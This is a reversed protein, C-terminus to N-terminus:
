KEKAFTHVKLTVQALTGSMLAFSLFIAISFLLAVRKFFDAGADSCDGAFFISGDLIEVFGVTSLLIFGFITSFALFISSIRPLVALVPSTTVITGDIEVHEVNEDAEVVCKAHEIIAIGEITDLVDSIEATEVVQAADVVGDICGITGAVENANTSTFVSCCDIAAANGIGGTIGSAECDASIEASLSDSIATDTSQASADLFKFITCFEVSFIGGTARISSFVGIVGSLLLSLGDADVVIVTLYQIFYKSHPM